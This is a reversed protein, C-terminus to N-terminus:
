GGAKMPDIALTFIFTSGRGPESVVRIRGGHAEALGKCIALGIGWGGKLLANASKDIPAQYFKNFIAEQHDPHIGPGQDQMSVEVMNHLQHIQVGVTSNPPSFKLANSLLNTMIQHIRHRDCSLILDEKFGFAIHVGKDQAIHMQADIAEQIITALPQPSLDLDLHRSEIRSYDLFDLIGRTLYDTNKRIIDLYTPDSCSAKRILIDVAGKIATLPTRLEHSADSLFESKAKSMTILQQNALELKVNTCQLDETAANIKRALDEHQYKLKQDMLYCLGMVDKLEDGESSQSDHFTEDRIKSTVNRIDKIPKFILRRAFLFLVLIVSGTLGMMSFLLSMNEKHMAAKAENFPIFVSICGGVDGVKRHFNSHCSLCSDKVVLPATYRFFYKGNTFEIRSMSLASASRYEMIVKSEFPDPQNKPNIGNFNTLNFMYLNSKNAYDSLQKTLEAPTVRIFKKENVTASEPTQLLDPGQIDRNKPVLVYQHDSVWQRTLVIQRHLIIAQKEVQALILKEQRQSLWLYLVTFVIAIFITTLGFFKISIRQKIYGPLM